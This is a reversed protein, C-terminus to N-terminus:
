GDIVRTRVVLWPVLRTANEPESQPRNAPRLAIQPDDKRKM